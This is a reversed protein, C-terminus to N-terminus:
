SVSILQNSQFIASFPFDSIWNTLFSVSMLCLVWNKTPVSEQGTLTDFLDTTLSTVQILARSIVEGVLGKAQKPTPNPQNQKLFASAREYLQESSLEGNAWAPEETDLATRGLLVVKGALKSSLGVMCEATIGRAGGTVLVLEDKSDESKLTGVDSLPEPQLDIRWRQGRRTRGVEALNRDADFAEELVASAAESETMEPDLDIHRCYIGPWERSLSKTLGSLGAPMFSLSNEHSLGLTGGLRSVSIFLGGEPKNWKGALAFVAKFFAYDEERFGDIPATLVSPKPALIV